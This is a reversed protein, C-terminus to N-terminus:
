NLPFSTASSSGTTPSGNNIETRPSANSGATLVVPTGPSLPSANSTIFNPPQLPSTVSTLTYGAVPASLYRPDTSVAAVRLLVTPTFLSQDPGFPGPYVLGSVTPDSGDFTYVVTMGPVNVGLVIGDDTPDSLDGLSFGFPNVTRGDARGFVVSLQMTYTATAALSASYQPDTNFAALAVQAPFDTSTWGPNNDWIPSTATPTSGDTTYHYTTGPPNSSPLTAINNLPFPAATLDGQVNFVPPALPMAMNTAAAGTTEIAFGVGAGRTLQSGSPSVSYNLGDVRASGALNRQAGTPQTVANVEFQAVRHRVVTLSTGAGLTVTTGATGGQVIAGQLPNGVLAPNIGQLAMQSQFTAYANEQTASSAATRHMRMAQSMVLVGATAGSFLVLAVVLEVTTFAARSRRSIM